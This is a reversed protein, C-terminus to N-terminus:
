KSGELHSRQGCIILFIMGNRNREHQLVTRGCHVLKTKQITNKDANQINNHNISTLILASKKATTAPSSLEEGRHIVAAYNLGYKRTGGTYLLLKMNNYIQVSQSIDNSTNTFLYNEKKM